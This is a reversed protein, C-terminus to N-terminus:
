KGTRRGFLRARWSRNDDQSSGSGDNVQEKKDEAPDLAGAKEVFIQELSPEVVYFSDIREDAEELDRLLQSRIAPDNLKVLFGNGKPTFSVVYPM